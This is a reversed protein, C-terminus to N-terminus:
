DQQRNVQNLDLGKGVARATRREQAAAELTPGAAAVGLIAGLEISDEERPWEIYGISGRGKVLACAASQM